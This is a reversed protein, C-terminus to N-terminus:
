GVRQEPRPRPALGAWTSLSRASNDAEQPHEAAVAAPPASTPAQRNEQHQAFAVARWAVSVGGLASRHIRPFQFDAPPELLEQFVIGVVVAATARNVPIAAVATLHRVRRCGPAARSGHPTGFQEMAREDGGARKLRM